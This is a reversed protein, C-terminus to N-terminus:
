RRMKGAPMPRVDRLQRVIMGFIVITFLAGWFGAFIMYFLYLGSLHVGDPLSMESRGPVYRVPFPGREPVRHWFASDVRVERRLTGQLTEAIYIIYYDTDEAGESSRSASIRKQVVMGTTVVGDQYVAQELARQQYAYYCAGWCAISFLLMVLLGLIFNRASLKGRHGKPTGPHDQTRQLDDEANERPSVEIADKQFGTIVVAAGALSQTPAVPVAAGGFRATRSTMLHGKDGVKLTIRKTGHRPIFFVVGPGKLCKFDDHRFVALRHTEQVISLICM